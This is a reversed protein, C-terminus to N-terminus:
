TRALAGELLMGLTDDIIREEPEDAGSLVRMATLQVISRALTPSDIRRRLLGRARLERIHPVILSAMPPASGAPPPRDIDALVEMVMGELAGRNERALQIYRTLVQEMRVTPGEEPTLPRSSIAQLEPLHRSWTAAAVASVTGFQHYVTSPSVGAAEAIEAVKVDALPRDAFLPAAAEVIQRWTERGPRVPGVEPPRSVLRRDFGVAPTADAQEGVPRTMAIVIASLLDSYLGDRVSTPDAVARAKIGGSLTTLVVSLDVVTFPPMVERGIADLAREYAPVMADHLNRYREALVDGGTRDSQETVPQDWVALLLQQLGHNARETELRGWESEAAAAFDGGEVFADVVALSRKTSEDWLEVLRDIVAEAFEARNRFHHFFSGTTVGARETISRTDAGALLDQFRQRLILEVGADVLESRRDAAM